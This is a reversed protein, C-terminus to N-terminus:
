KIPNSTRIKNKRGPFLHRIHDWDEDRKKVQGIKMKLVMTVIKM